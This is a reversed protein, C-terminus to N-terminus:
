KKNEKELLRDILGYIDKKSSQTVGPIFIELSLERKVTEFVRKRLNKLQSQLEKNEEELRTITIEEPIEKM